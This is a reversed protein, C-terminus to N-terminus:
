DNKRKNLATKAIVRGIAYTCDQVDHTLTTGAAVFCDNGISIPAVLNVNAGVFCDNGVQTKHKIKGDYNCFVTGCGINTREGVTADGIYTLHASKTGDGITSAKVEVFDGIRCGKGITAGRLRAFPGVTAGEGIVSDVVHSYEIYAGARVVSDRVLSAAVVAGREIRTSGEIRCFPLIKADEGIQATDDIFTSVKDVIRVGCTLHRSVIRDKLINYVLCYSKADSIEFFASNNVFIGGEGAKGLRIYASSDCFGLEKLGKLRMSKVIRLVADREVLPCALPLVVSYVGDEFSIEDASEVRKCDFEALAREEYDAVRRGLIAEDQWPSSVFYIKLKEM